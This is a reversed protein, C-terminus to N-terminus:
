EEKESIDEINTDHLRRKSQQRKGILNDTLDKYTSDEINRWAGAFSLNREKKSTSSELRSIFEDIEKLRDSPIRQIKRLIRSRIQTDIIM